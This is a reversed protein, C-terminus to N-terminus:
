WLSELWKTNLWIHRAAEYCHVHLATSDVGTWILEQRVYKTRAKETCGPVTDKYASGQLRNKLVNQQKVASIDLIIEIWFFPLPERINYCCYLVIHSQLIIVDAYTCFIYYTCYTRRNGSGPLKRVGPSCWMCDIAFLCVVLFICFFSECLNSLFIFIEFFSKWCCYLEQHSVFLILLIIIFIFILIIMNISLIIIIIIFNIIVISIICSYRYYSNM